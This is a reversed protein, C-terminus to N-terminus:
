VFNKLGEIKKLLLTLAISGILALLFEVLIDLGPVLASLAHLFSTNEAFLIHTFFLHLAYLGLSCDSILKVVCPVQRTTLLALYLLLWSGFVLSLRSYHVLSALLIWELLTFILFLTLLSWLKLQFLPTIEELKGRDLEHVVIAASFVYPLFNLPNYDWQAIGSITQVLSSERDGIYSNSIIPDFISFLFILICSIVFLFYIVRISNNESAKFFLAILAALITTFILSFFFYFPSNCGSVIFEIWGRVSIPAFQATGANGGKFLFRLLVFLSVWFLYLSILRIIRKQFFRRFEVKKSKFYFLFLSIQFFTPVALYSFNGYLLNTLTDVGQVTALTFLGAHDAVIAVSFIARLFDFGHFKSTQKLPLKLQKEEQSEHQALPDIM